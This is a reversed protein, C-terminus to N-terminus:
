PAEPGPWSRTLVCLGAPRRPDPRPRLRPRRGRGSGLGGGGSRAPRSTLAPGALRLPPPPCSPRLSRGAPAQVSPARPPLVPLWRRGRPLSSGPRASRLPLGGLAARPTRAAPALRRTPRVTRPTGRLRRRACHYCRSGQPTVWPPVAGREGWPRAAVASTPTILWSCLYPRPRVRRLHAPPPICLSARAM